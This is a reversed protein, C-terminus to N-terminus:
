SNTASDNTVYCELYFNQLSGYIKDMGAVKKLMEFIKDKTKQMFKGQQLQRRRLGILFGIHPLNEQMKDLINQGTDVLIVRILKNLTRSTSCGHHVTVPVPVAHRMYLKFMIETFQAHQTKEM